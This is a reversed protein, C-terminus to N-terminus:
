KDNVNRVKATYVRPQPSQPLLNRWSIRPATFAATAYRNGESAFGGFYRTKTKKKHHAPMTHRRKDARKGRDKNGRTRRNTSGHTASTKAVSTTECRRQRRAYSLETYVRVFHVPITTRSRRNECLYIVLLAFFVGSQSKITSKHM